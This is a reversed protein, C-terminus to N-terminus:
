TLSLKLLCCRIDQVATLLFDSPEMRIMSLKLGSRKAMGTPKMVVREPVYHHHIDIAHTQMEKSM